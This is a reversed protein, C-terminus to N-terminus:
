TAMARWSWMALIFASASSSVDILRYAQMANSCAMKCRSPAAFPMSLAASNWSPETALLRVVRGTHVAITPDILDSRLARLRALMWDEDLGALRSYGVVDAALIAALKRTESVKDRWRKGVYCLSLRLVAGNPVAHNQPSPAGRPGHGPLRGQTRRSCQRRDDPFDRFPAQQENPTVLVYPPIGGELPVRKLSITGVDLDIEVTLRSGRPKLEASQDAYNERLALSIAELADAYRM